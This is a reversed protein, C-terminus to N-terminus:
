RGMKDERCAADERASHTRCAWGTKTHCKRGPEAKCTPCEVGHLVSLKVMGHNRTPHGFDLDM